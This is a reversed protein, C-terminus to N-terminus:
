DMEVRYKVVTQQGTSEETERVYVYGDKIKEISRNGPWSFTTLLEGTDQLVWWTYTRKDSVTITSIWLRNKDDMIIDELAPWTAPLEANQLLHQNAESEDGYMSLLEYRLLPRKELSLYFARLYEGNPTFLQILPEDSNASVIHGDDSIYILPQNLFPVPMFNWIHRGEVDATIHKLSKLEFLQESVVEGESNVIYYNGPRIKDLNYKPTGVNANAIQEVYRVLFREEDILHYGNSFRGQLEEINPARNLYANKVEVVNLSDLSYFTTRFQLFDFAFLQNNHIKIEKIGNFEGPGDGEGGVSSLYSGTSNFVQIRKTSRNGVYIRGTDDVELGGFWSDGGSFAWFDNSWDVFWESTASLDKIEASHILEIDYAPESTPQIIVLNQIRSLHEPIEIENQTTCSIGVWYLVLIIFAKRKDIQIQTFIQYYNM